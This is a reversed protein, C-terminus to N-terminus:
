VCGTTMSEFTTMFAEIDDSLTLKEPRIAVVLQEGEKPPEKGSQTAVRGLGVSDLFVQGDAVQTIRADFFNM